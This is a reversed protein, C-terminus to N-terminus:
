IMESFRVQNFVAQEVDDYSEVVCLLKPYKRILDKKLAEHSSSPLTNILVGPIGRELFGKLGMPEDEVMCFIKRGNIAHVKYESGYYHIHSLRTQVKENWEKTKEKVVDDYVSFKKVDCARATVGEIRFGKQVLKKNLKQVPKIVGRVFYPSNGFERILFEHYRSIHEFRFGGEREVVLDKFLTSNKNSEIHWALYTQQGRKYEKTLDEREFHAQLFKAFQKKFPYSVMDIDQLVIKDM